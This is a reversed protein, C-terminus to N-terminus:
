IKPKLLDPVDPKTAMFTLLQENVLNRKEEDTLPRYIYEHMIGLVDKLTYAQANQSRIYNFV